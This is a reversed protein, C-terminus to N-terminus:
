NGEFAGRPSEWVHITIRVICASSRDSRESRSQVPHILGTVGTPQCIASPAAEYERRCVGVEELVPWGARSLPLKLIRVAVGALDPPDLWDGRM